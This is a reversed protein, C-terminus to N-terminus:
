DKKVPTHSSFDLMTISTRVEGTHETTLREGYLDPNMKSARWKLSNFLTAHQPPTLKGKRLEIEIEAIKSAIIAASDRLAQRYQFWKAAIEDETGAALYRYFQVRSPMGARKYISTIPVDESILECIRLFLAPTCAPKGM